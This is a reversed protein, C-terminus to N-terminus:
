PQIPSTPTSESNLSGALIEVQLNLFTKPLLGCSWSFFMDRCHYGCIYLVVGLDHSGFLWGIEAECAVGVEGGTEEEGSEGAFWDAYSANV